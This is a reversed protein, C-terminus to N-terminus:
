LEPVNVVISGPKESKLANRLDAETRVPKGEVSLIIDPGNRQPDDFLTEWQGVTETRMWGPRIGNVRIGFRGLEAAAVRTLEDVAAKSVSYTNMFGAPRTSAISSITIISGGGERMALAAHKVTHATGLVNVGLPGMWHEAGIHLLSGPVAVGANAVAVHLVGGASAFTAFTQGGAQLANASVTFTAGALRHDPAAHQAQQRAAGHHARAM